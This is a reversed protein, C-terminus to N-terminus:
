HQPREGARFLNGLDDQFQTWWSRVPGVRCGEGGLSRFEKDEWLSEGFMAGLIQLNRLPRKAIDQAWKLRQVRLSLSVSALGLESFVKKNTM